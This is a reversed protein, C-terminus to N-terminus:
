VEDFGYNKATGAIKHVATYLSSFEDEDWNVTCLKQWTKKIDSITKLLRNAYEKNLQAFEDQHDSNQSM